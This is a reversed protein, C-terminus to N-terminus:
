GIKSMVKRRYKETGEAVTSGIDEAREKVTESFHEARKKMELAQKEIDRRTKRGSQPAYLLGVGMGIAAGAMIGLVMGGMTEKKM